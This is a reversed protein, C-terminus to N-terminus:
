LGRLEVGKSRNCRQCTAQLNDPDDSGGFLVPRIHDVESATAGCVQCIFSDRALIQARRARWQRTSGNRPQCHGCYSGANTLRGCRGLCPRLAM